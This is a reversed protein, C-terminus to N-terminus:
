VPMTGRLYSAPLQIWNGHECKVGYESLFRNVIVNAYQCYCGDVTDGVIVVGCAACYDTHEHEHAGNWGQYADGAHGRHCADSCYNLADVTDGRADEVIRIHM